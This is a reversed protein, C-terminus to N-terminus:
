HFTSTFKALNRYCNDFYNNRKDVYFLQLGDTDTKSAIMAFGCITQKRIRGTTRLTTKHCTKTITIQM